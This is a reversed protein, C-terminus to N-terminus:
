LVDRDSGGLGAYAAKFAFRARAIITGVSTERVNVAQAIERYSMGSSKLLLVARDRPDLSGLAKRTLEGAEAQTLEELPAGQDASRDLGAAGAERRIRAKEKRLHNLATNVAVTTLWGRLNTSERPPNRYLTVFVEQAVDEAAAADCVIGTVLRCIFSYQEDFIRRFSDKDIRPGM